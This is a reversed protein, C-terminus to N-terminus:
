QLWKLLIIYQRWRSALELEEAVVGEKFIHYDEHGDQVSQKDQVPESDQVQGEDGCAHEVGQLFVM